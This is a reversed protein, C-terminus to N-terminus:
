LYESINLSLKLSNNVIRGLILTRVGEVAVAAQNSGAPTRAVIVAAIKGLNCFWMVCRGICLVGSKRNRDTHTKNVARKSENQKSMRQLSLNSMDIFYLLEIGKYKRLVCVISRSSRDSCQLWSRPHHSLKKGCNWV